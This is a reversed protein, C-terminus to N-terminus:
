RLGKLLDVNTRAARALRGRTRKFAGTQREVASAAAMLAIGQQRSLGVNNVSVVATRHWHKGGLARVRGVVHGSVRDPRVGNSIPMRGGEGTQLQGIVDAEGAEAYGEMFAQVNQDFKKAPDGRFFPGDRKIQTKYKLAM